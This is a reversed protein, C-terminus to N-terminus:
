MTRRLAYARADSTHVHGLRALSALVRGVAPEIKTGQRFGRAITQADLPGTTLPRAPPRGADGCHALPSFRERPLTAAAGSSRADKTEDKTADKKPRLPTLRDLPSM